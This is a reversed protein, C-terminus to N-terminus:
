EWAKGLALKAPQLVSSTYHHRSTSSSKACSLTDAGPSGDLRLFTSVAAAKPSGAQRAYWAVGGGGVGHLCVSRHARGVVMTHRPKKPVLKDDANCLGYKSIRCQHFWLDGPWPPASSSEWLYPTEERGADSISLSPRADLMSSTHAPQGTKPCPQSIYRPEHGPKATGDPAATEAGRSSFKDSDQEGVLWSPWPDTGDETGLAVM